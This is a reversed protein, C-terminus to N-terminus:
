DRTRMLRGCSSCRHCYSRGLLGMFVYDPRGCECKKRLIAIKYNFYLIAPGIFIAMFPFVFFGKKGFIAVLLLPILVILLIFGSLVKKNQAELPVNLFLEKLKGAATERLDAGCAPCKLDAYVTSKQFFNMEYNPKWGEYLPIANKGCKPCTLEVTWGHKLEMVQKYKKLFSFM